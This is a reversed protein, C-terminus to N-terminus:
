ANGIGGREETLFDEIAQEAQNETVHTGLHYTKNDRSIQARWKGSACRGISGPRGRIYRKNIGQESPTAWRCNGPEYNGDVDIRDISHRRSPRSGMDELFWEFSVRWRDCVKIGRGCYNHAGSVKHNTARQVMNEWCKYAPNKSQGSITRRPWKSYGRKLANVTTMYPISQEKCFEVISSYGPLEM